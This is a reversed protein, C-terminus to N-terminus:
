RAARGRGHDQAGGGQAVHGAGPLARRERGRRHRRRRRHRDGARPRVAVAYQVLDRAREHRRVHRHAFRSHCHDSHRGGAVDAPVPHGGARGAAAGRDADRHGCRDLVSHVRDPQLRDFLRRGAPFGEGARGDRGQDSRGDGACEFGAAPVHVIATATKNNLYANVTYDQSGLEVRAVDSLRIM